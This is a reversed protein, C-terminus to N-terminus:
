KDTKPDYEITIPKDPIQHVKDWIAQQYENTPQPAWGERVADIYKAIRYPRVESKQMNNIIRSEIDLAFDLGPIADLDSLKTIMRCIGGPETGCTGGCVFAFARRVEKEFRDELIPKPPKDAALAKVNVSAWFDEPALVIREARDLDELRVVFREPSPREDTESILITYKFQRELKAIAKELATRGVTKQKNVFVIAGKETDPQRIKGGYRRMAIRAMIERNSLANARSDDVGDVAGIATAALLIAGKLIAYKM